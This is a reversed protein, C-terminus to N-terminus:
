RDALQSNILQLVDALFMEHSPEVNQEDGVHRHHPFTPIHRHHLANDWRILLGFESTMWQFSYKRKQLGFIRIETFELLSGDLFTLRAKYESVQNDHRDALIRHDRILHTYAALIEEM